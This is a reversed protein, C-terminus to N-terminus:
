MLGLFLTMVGVLGIALTVAGSAAEIIATSLLEMPATTGAAPDWVLQHWGAFVFALSVMVLLITNM